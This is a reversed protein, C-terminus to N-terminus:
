MGRGVIATLTVPEVPADVRKQQEALAKWMPAENSPMCLQAAAAAATLPERITQVIDAAAHALPGAASAASAYVSCAHFRDRPVGRGSDYMAALFFQAIPDRQATNEALPKLIRAATEYDGRVIAQVGDAATAQALAVRPALVLLLALVHLGRVM